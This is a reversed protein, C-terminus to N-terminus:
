WTLGPALRQMLTMRATNRTLRGIPIDPDERELIYGPPYQITSKDKILDGYEDRIFVDTRICGCHRECTIVREAEIVKSRKLITAELPAHRWNHGLDRCALMQPTMQALQEAPSSPAPIDARSHRM